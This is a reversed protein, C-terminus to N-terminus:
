GSGFIELKKGVLSRLKRYYDPDTETHIPYRNEPM